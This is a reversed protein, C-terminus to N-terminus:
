SDLSNAAKWVEGRLTSRTESHPQNYSLQKRSPQTVIALQDYGPDGSDGDDTAM